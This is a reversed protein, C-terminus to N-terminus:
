CKKFINFNSFWITVFNTTLSVGKVMETHNYKSAPSTFYSQLMPTIMGPLQICRTYLLGYM